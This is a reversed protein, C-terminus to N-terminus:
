LYCTDSGARQIEGMRRERTLGGQSKISRMYVQEISIAGWFKDTRRVAHMGKVFNNFVNFHTEKPMSMDQLYLKASKCYLNHGSAAFVFRMENLAMLHLTWNSIREAKLFRHAISILKLYLLWLQATKNMHLTKIHEELKDAICRVIDSDEVSVDSAVTDGFCTELETLIEQDVV